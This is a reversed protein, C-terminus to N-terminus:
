SLTLINIVFYLNRKRLRQIKIHIISEKEIHQSKLQM